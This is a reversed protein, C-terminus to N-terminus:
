KRRGKNAMIYKKNDLDRVVSIRGEMSLQNLRSKIRRGSARQRRGNRLLERVTKGYSNEIIDDIDRNNFYFTEVAFISIISGIGALGVIYPLNGLVIVTRTVTYTKGSYAVIASIKDVGEPLRGNLEMGSGSYAGNVYWAVTINGTNNGHIILYYHGAKESITASRITTVPKAYLTNNYQLTDVFTYNYGAKNMAVVKYSYIGTITNNSILSFENNHVPYTKNFVTLFLKYSLGSSVNIKLTTNRYSVSESIKSIKVTYPSLITSDSYVAMHFGDMSIVANGSQSVESNNANIGTNILHGQVLEYITDNAEYTNDKLYSLNYYTFGYPRLYLNGYKLLYNIGNCYNLYVEGASMNWLYNGTQRPVMTDNMTYNYIRDGSFATIQINRSANVSLIEVHPIAVRYNGPFIFTGNLNFLIFQNRYILLHTSNYNQIITRNVSLDTVNVSYIHTASPTSYYFIFMGDHQFSKIKNGSSDNIRGLSSYNSDYYNYRIISMESNLYIVSNIRTDLFAMSSSYPKYPIINGEKVKFNDIKAGGPSLLQSYNKVTIKGITQNSYKGGFMFTVNGSKYQNKLAVTDPESYHGSGQMVIAHNRMNGSLIISLNYETYCSKYNLIGSYNQSGSVITKYYLQKGYEISLLTKNGQELIINNETSGEVDSNPSWSLNFSYETRSYHSVTTNYYVPTSSDTCIDMAGGSLNRVNINSNVADLRVSGQTHEGSPIHIISVSFLLVFIIALLRIRKM